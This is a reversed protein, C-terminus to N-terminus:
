YRNEEEEEDLAKEILHLAKERAKDWTVIEKFDDPGLDFDDDEAEPKPLEVDKHNEEYYIFDTLDWALSGIMKAIDSVNGGLNRRWRGNENSVVIFPYDYTEKTEKAQLAPDYLDPFTSLTEGNEQIAKLLTKASFPSGPTDPHELTCLAFIPSLAAYPADKDYGQQELFEFTQKPGLHNKQAFVRIFDDDNHYIQEPSGKYYRNWEHFKKEDSWSEIVELMQKETAM